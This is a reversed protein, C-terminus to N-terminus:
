RLSNKNRRGNGKAERRDGFEERIRTKEKEPMYLWCRRHFRLGGVKKVGDTSEIPNLCENCLTVFAM